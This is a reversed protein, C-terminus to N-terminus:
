YLWAKPPVELWMLKGSSRYCARKAVHPPRHDLSVDVEIFNHMQGLKDMLDYNEMCEKLITFYQEITHRNDTAKM